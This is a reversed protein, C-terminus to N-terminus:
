LGRHSGLQLIVIHLIRTILELNKSAVPQYGRISNIFFKKLLIEHNILHKKLYRLVITYLM